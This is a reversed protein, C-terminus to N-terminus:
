RYSSAARLHFKTFARSSQFVVLGRRLSPEGSGLPYDEALPHRAAVAELLDDGAGDAYCPIVLLAQVEVHTGDLTEPRAVRFLCLYQICSSEERQCYRPDCSRFRFGPVLGHCKCKEGACAREEQSM